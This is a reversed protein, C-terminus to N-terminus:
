GKSTARVAITVPYVPDDFSWARKPMDEQSLGAWYALGTLLNGYCTIDTDEPSFYREFLNKVGLPMFRHLDHDVFDIPAMTPVTILASGGPALIRRIERVGASPDELYQFVQTVIVCDYAGDKIQALNQLDGIITAEKNTSDVDLVDVRQVKSGGFYKSYRCDGVELCHGRILNRNGMLFEEIYKRDISKGRGYAYRDGDPKDVMMFLRLRAPFFLRQVRRSRDSEANDGALIRFMQQFISRPIGSLQPM